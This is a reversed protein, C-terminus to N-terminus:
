AGQIQKMILEVVADADLPIDNSDFNGGRQGRAWTQSKDPLSPYSMSKDGWVTYHKIGLMRAAVEFDESFAGPALFEVVASRKTPQMWLLSTLGAGHVGLLVTTRAALKVQEERSLKEMQVVNVEWSRNRKKLQRLKDVLATHDADRLMRKGWAQRTVYTIVPASEERKKRTEALSDTADEGSAFTVVNNRLPMWWHPSKPLKDAQVVAKDFTTKGQEGQHTGARKAVTRDGLVIRDFFHPRFTDARDQWDGEFELGTSPFAGHLIYQNLNAYDRWRSSPIYPAIFRRPQPLRTDGEATISVDLSSYARWLPFLSEATFHYYDSMMSAGDNCIFTTGEMRSAQRGLLANAEQESIIRMTDDISLKSNGANSIIARTEPFTSPETDSRVIYLTGNLFYVNDLITY